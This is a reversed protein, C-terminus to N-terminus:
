SAGGARGRPRVLLSRAEGVTVVSGTVLVAGSGVSAAAGAEALAAAQDIADALRPAVPVRHEGFIERATAALRDAALARDTSNQTCVVHALHPEFAALLGDADKDAM